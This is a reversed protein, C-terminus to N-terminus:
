FLYSLHLLLSAFFYRLNENVDRLDLTEAALSSPTSSTTTRYFDVQEELELVRAKLLNKEHLVERLEGLTFRPSDDSSERM